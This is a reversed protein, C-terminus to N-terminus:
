LVEALLFDKESSNPSVRKIQAGCSALRHEINEYGRDIHYIRNVLTEGEAALAALVLGVSARLDTAMVPAGTLMRQGRVVACNGNMNIDAGMRMLECVHMFRNEWITEIISSEGSALTSLAMFQAQLDTPFGPFPDTRIHFPACRDSAWVRVSHGFNQINVGSQQLIECVGPLLTLDTGELIIDGKTIAAAIMYTGIEIRDPLVTHKAGTLNPQGQIHLTSTGKGEIIAGMKLLCEILNTIEPEIAVNEICSEGSALVAAFILNQTGTVTINPFKYYGGTVRGSNTTAIIYGQQLDINVGLAKLGEMHFNIPRLGIACGGPLSVEAKGCRGLLAGLVVISARMKRVTEYSARFSTIDRTRLNFTKNFKVVSTGLEELLCQMSVVDKVLPIGDLSLIDDTLLSAVMLPLAANKAGNIEIIGKLPVGGTIQMYDM